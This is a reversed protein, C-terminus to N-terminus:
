LYIMLLYSLYIYINKKKKKQYKEKSQHIELDEVSFGSAMLKAESMDYPEDLLQFGTWKVRFTKM